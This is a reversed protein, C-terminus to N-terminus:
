DEWYYKYADYRLEPHIEYYESGIREHDKIAEIIFDDMNMSTLIM